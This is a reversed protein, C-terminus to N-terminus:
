PRTGLRRIDIREAIVHRRPGIRIQLDQPLGDFGGFAGLAFLETGEHVSVRELRENAIHFERRAAFPRCRADQRRLELVNMTVVKSLEPTGLGEGHDRRGRVFRAIEYIRKLVGACLVVM